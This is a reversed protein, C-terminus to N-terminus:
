EKDPNPGASRVLGEVLGALHRVESSLQRFAAEGELPLRTPRGAQVTEGVVTMLALRAFDSLSRSRFLISANRVNEYEDQSVRFSILRSRPRASKM